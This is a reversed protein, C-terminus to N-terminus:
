KCSIKLFMPFVGGGLAELFESPYLPFKSPYLMLFHSTCVPVVPNDRISRNYKCYIDSDIPTKKPEIFKQMCSLEM